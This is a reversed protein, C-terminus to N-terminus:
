VGRDLTRPQPRRDPSTPCCRNSCVPSVPVPSSGGGRAGRRPRDADRRTPARQHHQLRRPRAARPRPRRDGRAGHVHRGRAGRPRAAHRSRRPDRLCPRGAGRLGGRRAPGRAGAGSAAHRRRARPRLGLLSGPLHASGSRDPPQAGTMNLHDTILMLDGPDFDPDLGGAANTVVFAEVGVAAAARVCAAVARADHGEYLHIRGQQVLVQVGALRGAVLRGAHGPVASTPLGIEDFAMAAPEQVQDALGGLGSGLTLLVRPRRGDLAAHLRAETRTVVGDAAEAALDRRDPHSGCEAGGGHVRQRPRHAPVDVATARPAGRRARRDRRRLRVAGRGGLPDRRRAPADRESAGEPDRLVVLGLDGSWPTAAALGVVQNHCLEPLEGTISPLKANEALQCSLRSAALAPLGRTGWSVPLVDAALRLALKSRRTRRPRSRAADRGGHRVQMTDVAEDLGDDLGLMVLLPGAMFGLSHRPMGGGPVVATPAGAAEARERLEGGSTVAALACGRAQAEEVASLTEETGGSYSCAVVLAGPGVWAPLGYGKHVLVPPGGRQAALVAAVDGSIGSGGMGAVVVLGIGDLDLRRPAFEHARRWQDAAGEVDALADDKDVDRLAEQDDLTM